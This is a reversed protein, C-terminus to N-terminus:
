NGAKEQALEICHDRNGMMQAVKKAASEKTKAKVEIERVESGVLSEIRVTVKFTKMRTEMYESYRMANVKDFM